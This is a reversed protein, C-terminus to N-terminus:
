AIGFDDWGRREHERCGDRSVGAQRALRGLRDGQTWPTGMKSGAPGCGRANLAVGSALERERDAVHVGRDHAGGAFVFGWFPIWREEIRWRMSDIKQVALSM